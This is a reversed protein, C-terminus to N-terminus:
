LNNPTYRYDMAAFQRSSLSANWKLARTDNSFTWIDIKICFTKRCTMSKGYLRSSWFDEKIKPFTEHYFDDITETFLFSQNQIEAKRLTIVIM